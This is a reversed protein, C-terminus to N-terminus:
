VMLMVAELTVKWRASLGGRDDQGDTVLLAKNGGSRM